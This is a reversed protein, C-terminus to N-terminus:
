YAPSSPPMHIAWTRWLLNRWESLVIMDCWIVLRRSSCSAWIWLWAHCRSQEPWLNTHNRTDWSSVSEGQSQLGREVSHEEATTRSQIWMLYRMGGCEVIWGHDTRQCCAMLVYEILYIFFSGCRWPEIVPRSLRPLLGLQFLDEL